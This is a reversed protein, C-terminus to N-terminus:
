SKASRELEFGEVGLERKVFEAFVKTFGYAVYVEEAGSRKVYEVLDDFDSHSSLPIGYGLAWGTCQIANRRASSLPLVVPVGAPAAGRMTAYNGLVEGYREYVVNRRAVSEHVIPTFRGALSLLAVVEQATGLPRAAILARGEEDVREKVAAILRRYLEGRPPFSYRPHGYTADIVLVDARLVPAPRLVVRRELSFDGTFAVLRGLDLRVQLSGIVHGADYVELSIGAVELSEGANVLVVNRLTGRPDVLDRTAPSMVKPVRDLARLARLGYHDRHAHSVFVLDPKVRPLGRPDLLVRRGRGEVLIGGERLVRIM